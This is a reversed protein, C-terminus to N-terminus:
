QSVVRNRGSQKAEYMAVDGRSLLADGNYEGEHRTVVGISATYLIRDQEFVVTQLRLTSLIDEAIAVATVTDTNPLLVALEEGGL